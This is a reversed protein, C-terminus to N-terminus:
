GIETGTGRLPCEVVQAVPAPLGFFSSTKHIRLIAMGFQLSNNLVISVLTYCITEQSERPLFYKVTTNRSAQMVYVKHRIEINYKTDTTRKNNYHQKKNIILQFYFTMM